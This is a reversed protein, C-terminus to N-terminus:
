KRGGAFKFFIKLKARKAESQCIDTYFVGNYYTGSNLNLSFKMKKKKQYECKGWLKLPMWFKSKKAM